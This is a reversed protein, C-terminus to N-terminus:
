DIKGDLVMGKSKKTILRKAEPESIDMMKAVAPVNYGVSSAKMKANLEKARKENDYEQRNERSVIKRAAQAPTRVIYYKGKPLEPTHPNKNKVIINMSEKLLSRPDLAM